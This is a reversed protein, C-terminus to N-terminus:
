AIRLIRDDSVQQDASVVGGALLYFFLSHLEILPQAILVKVRAREDFGVDIRQHGGIRAADDGVDVLLHLTQGTGSAVLQDARRELVVEGIRSV